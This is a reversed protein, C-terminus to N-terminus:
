LLNDNTTTQRKYICSLGKSVSFKFSHSTRFLSSWQDNHIHGMARTRIPDVSRRASMLFVNEHQDVFLSSFFFSSSVAFLLTTYSCVPWAAHYLRRWLCHDIAKYQVGCICTNLRHTRFTLQVLKWANRRTKKFRNWHCLPGNRIIAQWKSSNWQGYDTEIITEISFLNGWMQWKM